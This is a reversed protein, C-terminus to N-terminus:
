WKREAVKVILVKLAHVAEESSSTPLLGLVERALGAYRQVLEETREVANSTSIIHHVTEMDGEQCFGREIIPAIVDPRTEWAYLLPTNIIGNRKADQAIQYAFGLHRGYAYAVEKWIGERCGGLVVSGRAGKAWLSASFLYVRKLYTEWADAPSSPHRPHSHSLFAGEMTNAIVGAILEVVEAEGLRPLAHSARGLLFDGGLISLKNGFSENPDSSVRFHLSNAVHIMEVIQALGLQSPLISFPYSTTANTTSSRSSHSELTPENLPFVTWFSEMHDPTNPNSDNLLGSHTLPKDLEDVRWQAMAKKESWKSGLGNTARAFLLVLLPRLQKSPHSFYRKSLLLDNLAPHASGLLNFLNKRIHALESSVLLHPLPDPTPTLKVRPPAPDHRSNFTSTSKQVQAALASYRRPNLCPRVILRAVM